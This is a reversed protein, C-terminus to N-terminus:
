QKMRRTDLRREPEPIDKLVYDKLDQENLLMLMNRKWSRFNFVGELRDEVRLRVVM